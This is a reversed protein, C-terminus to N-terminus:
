PQHLSNNDTITSTFIYIYIYIYIYIIYIYKIYINYIYINYVYMYTYILDNVINMVSTFSMVFNTGSGLNLDQILSQHAVKRKLTTLPYKYIPQQPICIKKKLLKKFFNLDLTNSAKSCTFNWKVILELISLPGIDNSNRLNEILICVSHLKQHNQGIM